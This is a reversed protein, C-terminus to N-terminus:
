RLAREQHEVRGVHDGLLDLPGDGVVVALDAVVGGALGAHGVQQRDEGRGGAAVRGLERVAVVLVARELGVGGLGDDLGEAGSWSRKASSAASGASTSRM